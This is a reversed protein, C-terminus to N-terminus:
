KNKLKTVSENRSELDNRQTCLRSVMKNQGPVMEEHDYMSCDRGTFFEMQLNNMKAEENNQKIAKKKLKDEIGSTFAIANDNLDNRASESISLTKAQEGRMGEKSNVDLNKTNCILTIILLFLLFIIIVNFYNNKKMKM